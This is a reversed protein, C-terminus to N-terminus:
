IKAAGFEQSFATLKPLEQSTGLEPPSAEDHGALAPEALGYVAMLAVLLGLVNSRGFAIETYNFLLISWFLGMFLYGIAHGQSLQSVVNRGAAYLLCLLLIVGIWGTNLYNDLYGNHAYDVHFEERIADGKNTLWYSAFGSGIIPDTGSKLALDWILTRDTLTADRGLAGAVVSRFGPSVTFALMVLGLACVCWGLRNLNAKVWALRSALLVVAAVIFCTLATASLAINLLWLCMLFLSLEPWVNRLTLQKGRQRYLDVVQWLLFVGGLMALQGLGNKNTSVGSYFTKYTWQHTYRGLTPYYKIFLVSVPVLVYACRLFVARIAQARDAETLLILIMVIDGADKFWRKFAVFSNDSWVVSFLYYAYLILWWTSNRLIHDWNVRRRALVMVGLAMLVLYITRDIPNGESIDGSRFATDGNSLWFAVARSGNIVIWILPIWLGPSM